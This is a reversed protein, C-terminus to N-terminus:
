PCAGLRAGLFLQVDSSDISIVVSSGPKKRQGRIATRFEIDISAPAKKTFQCQYIIALKKAQYNGYLNLLPENMEDKPAFKLNNEIVTGDSGIGPFAPSRMGHFKEATQLALQTRIVGKAGVSKVIGAQTSQSVSHLYYGQPIVVRSRIRCAGFEAGSQHPTTADLKVGLNTFVFAASNGSYATLVTSPSCAAATGEGRIRITSWSLEQSMAASLPLALSIAVLFILKLHYAWKRQM